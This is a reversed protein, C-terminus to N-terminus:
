RSRDAEHGKNCCAAGPKCCDAGLACCDSNVQQLKLAAGGILAGLLIGGSIKVWLANKLNM